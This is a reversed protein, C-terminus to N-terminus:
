TSRDGLADMRREEREQFTEYQTRVTSSAYIHTETRTSPVLKSWSLACEVPAPWQRLEQAANTEPLRVLATVGDPVVVDLEIPDDDKRSWSVSITGHSTELSSRAWHIDGGPQPAILM